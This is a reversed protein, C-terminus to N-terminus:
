IAPLQAPPPLFNKTYRAIGKTIRLDDIFGNLFYPLVTPFFRGISLFSSGPNNPAFNASTSVSGSGNVYVTLLGSARVAAVHYWTNISISSTNIGSFATGGSYANFNFGSGPVYYFLWAVNSGDIMGNFNGYSCIAQNAAISNLRAWCEVTFDGTGFVFDNSTQTTLLDGSGDFSFSSTGYKLVTTSIGANGAATITKPTPSEDLPVLPGPTENGRLLLSVSSYSPDDTINAPLEATPLALTNTGTFVMKAANVGTGEVYRAIGKTIRLDDINGNISEAGGEDGGVSILRSSNFLTTSNAGSGVLQGDIFLRITGSSRTAALHYWTNISPLFTASSDVIVAGGVGGDSTTIFRLRNTGGHRTFSWSANSGFDSTSQAALFYGVGSTSDAWRAWIEITFNGSGFVFDNSAPCTLCDGSGDLAISIGGSGQNWKAISTSIGANGVATIAKPTPSEDLPVLAPTGNRLLLSVDSYNGTWNGYGSGRAAGLLANRGGIM